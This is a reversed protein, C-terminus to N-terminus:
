NKHFSSLVQYVCNIFIICSSISFKFLRMRNFFNIEYKFIEGTPLDELWFLKVPSYKWLILSSIIWIEGLSKWFKKFQWHLLVLFFLYFCQFTLLLCVTMLWLNCLTSCLFKLIVKISLSNSKNLLILLTFTYVSITNSYVGGGFFKLLIILLLM